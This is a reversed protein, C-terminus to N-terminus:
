TWDDADAALKPSGCGVETPTATELTASAREYQRGSLERVVIEYQQEDIAFIGGQGSRFVTYRTRSVQLWLVISVGAFGLWVLEWIGDFWVHCLVGTALLTGGWKLIRPWDHTEIACEVTAYCGPAKNDHTHKAVRLVRDCDLQYPETYRRM